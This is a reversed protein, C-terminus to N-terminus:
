EDNESCHEAQPIMGSPQLREQAKQGGRYQQQGRADHVVAPPQARLAYEFIVKCVNPYKESIDALSLPEDYEACLCKADVTFNEHTEDRSIIYLFGDYFIEEEDPKIGTSGWMNLM